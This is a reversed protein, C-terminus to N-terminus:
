WLALIDASSTSGTSFVRKVQVPLFTGNAVNAFTLDAGSATLVRVDGGTGVYLVCGPNTDAYLVYNEGSAMINASLSLETASDVGIVYAASNDSTNYVIYGTLSGTFAATSDVLKNATTGDATGSQSPGGVNPIDVTDSKIVAVGTGVQLKQYAM